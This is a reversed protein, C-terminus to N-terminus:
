IVYRYVETINNRICVIDGVKANLFVCYPDIRYITNMKLGIDNFFQIKRQKEIPLLLKISKDSPYINVFSYPTYFM